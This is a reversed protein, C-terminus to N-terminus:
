RQQAGAHAQRSAGSLNRARRLVDAVDLPERALLLNAHQRELGRAALAADNTVLQIEERDGDLEYIHFGMERLSRLM